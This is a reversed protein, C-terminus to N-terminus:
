YVRSLPFSFVISISFLSTKKNNNSLESEEGEWSPKVLVNGYEVKVVVFFRRFMQFFRSYVTASKIISTLELAADFRNSSM